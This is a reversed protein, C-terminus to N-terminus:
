PKAGPRASEPSTATEALRAVRLLRSDFSLGSREAEALNLEVGVRGRELGLEVMGGLECFGPLEGVSLIPRGSLAALIGELGRAESPAVFLIDSTLLDAVEHSREIEIPRGRVREDAVIEELVAGFPDEGLIGIVFPSSTQGSAPWEVFLALNFLLAAKM